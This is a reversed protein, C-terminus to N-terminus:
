SHGDSEASEEDGTDEDYPEEPEAETEDRAQENLSVPSVFEIPQASLEGFVSAGLPLSVVPAGNALWSVAALLRDRWDDNWWQKCQTRRARHMRQSSRWLSRGDDSFLVHNRFMLVPEPHLVPKASVAFHWNRRGDGVTKYGMLSRRSKRGGVGTFKVEPDPLSQQDFYFAIRGGSMEYAGLRSAAFIEWAKRLFYTVVDRNEKREAWEGETLFTRTPITVTSEVKLSGLGVTLDSAPAFTLLGNRDLSTLYKTPFSFAPEGGWLGMLRHIHINDPLRVRFWNSVHLEDAVATGSEAAFTNEWWQRVADPSFRPDKPVGDKELKAVLQKLGQAWGNAFDVANLRSLEINIDDFPLDDIHLPIVFHELSSVKQVAQAVKLEKLSGDKHNSARSLVYLVKVANDRIAREIDNWFDEGGLLRTVDSWARYGLSALKLTLWRAFENDEPNAHSVFVLDRSRM